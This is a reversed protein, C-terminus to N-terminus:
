RGPEPGRRTRSTPQAAHQVAPAAPLTEHDHDATLAATIQDNITDEQGDICNAYIKLLVAVDHGLRRAVETAPVGNNLWLSAAAHRLDYPRCALPSQVQEETLASVRARAWARRASAENFARGRENHFVRGAEGTGFIDLHSRLLTVLEPPIPVIRVANSARRKLARRDRAQGNDTWEQGAWPESRALQLRGWGSAPLECDSARLAVVEAPRMGAYYLCGFFAVLYEGRRPQCRVADLLTRVQAPSAVVRRDVSEAVNPATWQVHDIPNTALLRREVTLGLANYFVARKRYVSTAAAPKGDLRVTLADLVSRIVALDRLSSVPRSASSV